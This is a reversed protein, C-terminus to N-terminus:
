EEEVHQKPPRGAKRERLAEIDQRRFVWTGGRGLQAGVGRSQALQQVRRESVGLEDAVQQVSYLDFAAEALAAERADHVAKRLVAEITSPSRTAHSPVGNPILINLARHLIGYYISTSDNLPDNNEAMM